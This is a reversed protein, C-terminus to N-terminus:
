RISSQTNPRRAFVSSAVFPLQMLPEKVAPNPIPATTSRTINGM